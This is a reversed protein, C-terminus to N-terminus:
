HAPCRLSGCFLDRVWVAATEAGHVGGVGAGLALRVAARYKGTSVRCTLNGTCVVM